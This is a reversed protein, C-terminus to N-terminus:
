FHFIEAIFTFCKIWTLLLCSLNRHMPMLMDNCIRPAKASKTEESFRSSRSLSMRTIKLLAMLFLLRKNKSLSHKISQNNMHLNFRLTKKKRRNKLRTLRHALNKKKKKKYKQNWNMRRNPRSSQNKRWIKENRRLLFWKCLQLATFIASLNKPFWNRKLILSIVRGLVIPYKVRRLIIPFRQLIMLM